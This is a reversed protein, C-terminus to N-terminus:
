AATRAIVASHLVEGTAATLRVTMSEPGASVMAFGPTSKAFLSLKDSKIPRVTSGAGVCFFHIGGAEQHQLDHDHGNFYLHVRHRKLLPLLREILEPTDGHEGGSYIPHHGLVVKWDAASEGLTRDIWDLQKATDQTRVNPGMLPDKAYSTVFPSTDTYVMLITKGGPITETRSYYRAPMRWRPSRSSYDIQAQCNGRYDHNGLIVNWPVLLSPAVYVNEFSEKWQPDDTSSVGYDYFNDGLSVVFPSRFGAAARGMQAAVDLQDRQGRRGWDGFVPFSLAGGSSEQGFVKSLLPGAIASGATAAFLTRVFERRTRLHSM